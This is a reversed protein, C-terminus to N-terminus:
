QFNDDEYLINFEFSNTFGSDNAIITKLDINFETSQNIKM